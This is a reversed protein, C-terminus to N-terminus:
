SIISLKSTEVSVDLFGETDMALENDSSSISNHSNYLNDM